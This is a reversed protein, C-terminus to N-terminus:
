LPELATRKPKVAKSLLGKFLRCGAGTSRGNGRVRVRERPSLSCGGGPTHKACVPKAFETAPIVSLRRVIRGRGLPSPRPSPSYFKAWGVTRHTYHEVSRSVQRSGEPRVILFEKVTAAPQVSLSEKDIAERELEGEAYVNRIHMSVNPITTQFLEAMQAQTLWVTEDELRVQLRTRGDETQYLVIEGSPKPENPPM